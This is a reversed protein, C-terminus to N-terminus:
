EGEKHEVATEGAVWQVYAELGREVPLALLEPVDYPHLQKVASALEDWRARSTKLLVVAETEETVEGSWRYISTGQGLITGCAVLRRRVLERVFSQADDASGLTTVVVFCSADDHSM